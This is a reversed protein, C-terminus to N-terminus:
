VASEIELSALVFPGVGKYDNTITKEGVYYEFSGDRYPNGGLGGVGVTKELNVLGQEDVRILNDLIGQYGNRAAALYAPALVGQRVAKALAYVFMCSASAEHYNGARRGQDLIQYWLGSAPDQVAVVAAALRQLIADIDPRKAHDQPLYDLVDVLAMAYWGVARGGFHPSCGTAPNAWKQQRREDWGHYLLGTKPDRAHKEMLTIQLIVDDFASPEGFTRGCEMHFPSAMYIGDLWMQHPYIKKHWFGGESTRPQEQLQRRLLLIAQEYKTDRTRRWLLFLTRGPNIQDLNYDELSYTAISGDVGILPDVSSFIYEYYKEDGTTRWLQEIALHMLAHEYHWRYPVNRQMVSGAMRVAWSQATAESHNSGSKM